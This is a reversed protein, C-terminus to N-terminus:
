QGAWGRLVKLKVECQKILNNFDLWDEYFYISFIRLKHNDLMIHFDRGEKKFMYSFNIDNNFFGNVVDINRKSQKLIKLEEDLINNLNFRNYFDILESCGKEQAKELSYSFCKKDYEFYYAEYSNLGMNVQKIEM